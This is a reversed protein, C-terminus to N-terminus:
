LIAPRDVLMLFTIGIVELTRNRVYYVRVTFVTLGSSDEVLRRFGVTRDAASECRNGQAGTGALPIDHTSSTSAIPVDHTSSTSAIPVDHTSAIPIDPTGQTNAIPIDNSSTSVLNANLYAKLKDANDVLASSQLLAFRFM